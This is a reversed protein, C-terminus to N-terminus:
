AAFHQQGVPKRHLNARAIILSRPPHAFIGDFVVAFTRNGKTRPGVFFPIGHFLEEIFEFVETPDGGTVVLQPPCGEKSHCFQAADTEIQAM